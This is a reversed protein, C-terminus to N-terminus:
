FGPVRLYTGTVIVQCPVVKYKFGPLMKKQEKMEAKAVYESNEVGSITWGEEHKFMVAWMRQSFKKQPSKKLLVKLPDKNTKM